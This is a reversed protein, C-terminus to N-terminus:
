SIHIWRLHFSKMELSNYLSELSNGAVRQPGSCAPLGFLVIGERVMCPNQRRSSRDRDELVRIMTSINAGEALSNADINCAEGITHNLPMSHKLDETFKPRIYGRRTSFSFSFESM